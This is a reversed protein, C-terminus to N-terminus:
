KSIVFEYNTDYTRVYLTDDVLFLWDPGTKLKSKYIVKGTKKDLQYLFDPENTFGYGCFIVDDYVVFNNANAVLNESKWLVTEKELDVAIIYATFPLTESYTWHAMCIYAIGEEVVAYRFETQWYEMNFWTGLKDPYYFESLDIEYMLMGNEKDLFDLSYGSGTSLVFQDKIDCDYDTKPFDKYEWLQNDEFWFDADIIDNRVSSIQEVQYPEVAEALSLSEDVYYGDGPNSLQFFVPEPFAELEIMEQMDKVLGEKPDYCVYRTNYLTYADRWGISEEPNYMVKNLILYAKGDIFESAEVLLEPYPDYNTGEITAIKRSKIKNNATVQYHILSEKGADLVLDNNQYITLIIDPLASPLFYDSYFEDGIAGEVDLMEMSNAVDPNAKYIGYENLCNATGAYYGVSFYIVGDKLELQDITSYNIYGIDDEPTQIKGLVVDNKTRIHYAHIEYETTSDYGINDEEMRPAQRYILYEGRLRADSIVYENEDASVKAIEENGEYILYEEHNEESTEGVVYRGTESDVDEMYGATLRHANKDTLDMQYIFPEYDETRGCAYFSGKYYCIKDSAYAKAVEQAPEDTLPDYCMLSCLVEEKGNNRFNGFLVERNIAEIPYQIYYILGDVSVFTDGNNLITHEEKEETNDTAHNSDSETGDDTLIDNSDPKTSTDTENEASPVASNNTNNRCGVLTVFLITILITLWLKKKM